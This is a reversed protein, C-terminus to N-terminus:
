LSFLEWNQGNTIDYLFVKSLHNSPNTSLEESMQSYVFQTDSVWSLPFGKGARKLEGAQWYEVFQPGNQEDQTHFVVAKGDPSIMAGQSRPGKKLETGSLEPFDAIFLSITEIDQGNPWAAVVWKKGDGSVSKQVSFYATESGYINKTDLTNSDINFVMLSKSSMQTDETSVLIKSSDVWGSFGLIPSLPFITGAKIDIIYYAKPLLGKEFTVTPEPGMMGEHLQDVTGPDSHVIFRRSNPSWPGVMSVKLQKPLVIKHKKDTTMLAVRGEETQYALYKGDPSTAVASEGLVATRVSNKSADEITFSEPKEHNLSILHLGNKAYVGFGQEASDELPQFTLGQIQTTPATNIDSSSSEDVQVVEQNSSNSSTILIKTQSLYFGTVIAIALAGVVIWLLKPQQRIPQPTLQPSEAPTAQPSTPQTTSEM